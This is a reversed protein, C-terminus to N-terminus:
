DCESCYDNERDLPVDTPLNLSQAAFGLISILASRACESKSRDSSHCFRAFGVGLVVVFEGSVLGGGEPIRIQSM